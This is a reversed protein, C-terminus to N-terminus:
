IGLIRSINGGIIKEFEEDTRAIHEIKKYEWAVDACPNDTGWILKDAGALRLLGATEYAPIRSTDLYLNENECALEAALEWEWFYGSHAMILNVTPFRRAMRDFELPANFLDSAGHVIVPKKYYAALEFLSDSFEHDSLRFSNAHPHLKLGQFGAKFCREVEDAARGERPKVFCFPILRDPFMSVYQMMEDNDFEAEPFPFIISKDIGVADMVEVIKAAGGNDGFISPGSGAHVHADIKLM